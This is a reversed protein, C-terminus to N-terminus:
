FFVFQKLRINAEILMIVSFFTIAKQHSNEMISSGSYIPISAM